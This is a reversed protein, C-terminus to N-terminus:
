GFSRLTHLSSINEAEAIMNRFSKERKELSKIEKELSVAPIKKKKFRRFYARANEVPSLDPDLTIKVPEPPDKEWDTLEVERARKPVSHQWALLLKGARKWKWAEAAQQKRTKLGKLKARTDKLDKRLIRLVQKKLGETEDTLLPVLVADRAADLANDAPFPTAGPLLFPFLTLTKKLWQFRMDETSNGLFASVGKQLVDEPWKDAAEKLAASLDRGFGAVPRDFAPDELFERITKVSVPSPPSYLAGPIATRSHQKEPHVPRLVELIRGNEDTIFLNSRHAMFEFIVNFQQVFGAGIVREFVLKLVRDFGTQEATALKAGAVHKKLMEEFRPMKGGTEQLTALDGKRVRCCGYHGHHLSCLIGFGATFSLAAWASGTEIGTCRRGTLQASIERSWAWVMEPGIAM